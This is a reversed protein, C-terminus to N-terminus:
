REILIEDGAANFCVAKDANLMNCAGYWERVYRKARENSIEEFVQSFLENNENDYIVLKYNEM